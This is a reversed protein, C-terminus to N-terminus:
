HEDAQGEALKARVKWLKRKAEQAGASNQMDRPDCLLWDSAKGCLEQAGPNQEWRLYPNLESTKGQTDGVV